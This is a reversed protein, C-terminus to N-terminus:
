NLASKKKLKINPKGQHMQTYKEKPGLFLIFV